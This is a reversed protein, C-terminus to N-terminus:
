NIAEAKPGESDSIYTNVDSFYEPVDWRWPALWEWNVERTTAVHAKASDLSVNPEDFLVGAVRQYGERYAGQSVAPYPLFVNGRFGGIWIYGFPLM